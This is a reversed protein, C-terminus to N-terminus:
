SPADLRKYTVSFPPSTTALVVAEPLRHPQSPATICQSYKAGSRRLTPRQDFVIM